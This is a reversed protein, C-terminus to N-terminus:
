GAGPPFAPLWQRVPDDLSLRGAESLALVAAATFQKTMSALRYNTAPTAAAHQELDALGYARRFVAAGDRLVLVSAGPVAGSYPRMLADIRAAREREGPPCGALVLASCVSVVAASALARPRM